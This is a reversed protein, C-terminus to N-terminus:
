SGAAEAAQSETAAKKTTVGPPSIRPETLMWEHFKEPNIYMRGGVRVVAGADKAGNYERWYAVWKLAALTLPIGHQPANRLVILQQTM